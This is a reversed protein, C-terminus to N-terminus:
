QEMLITFKSGIGPESTASLQWSHKECVTACISLGIGNGKYKKSKHLRSFPEFAKSAQQQDFGIGNDSITIAINEDIKEAEINIIPDRNEDRYKLSNGILNTFLQRIMSKDGKVTPLESIVIQANSEDIRLELESCVDSLLATLDVDTVVLEGKAASSFELLDDILTSMRTASSLVVDLHYQGEKTMVDALDEVLFSSFQQIKRLPEQLDHSAMFAFQNLSQNVLALQKNQEEVAKMAKNRESVDSLVIMRVGQMSGIAKISSNLEVELEEGNTRCLTLPLKEFNGVILASSLKASEADLFYNQCNQGPLKISEIGIETCLRDSTSLILGDENCLMMMSPITGFLSRYYDNQHSLFELQEESGIISGACNAITKLIRIEFSNFPNKRADASFFSVTGLPGNTTQVQTGIYAKQGASKGTNYQAYESQPINHVAIPEGSEFVMSCLNGNISLKEGRSTASTIEGSACIIEISEGMVSGIVGSSMNLVQIGVNLMQEIKDRSQLSEDTFIELLTDLATRFELEGVDNGTSVQIDSLSDSYSNFAYVNSRTAM